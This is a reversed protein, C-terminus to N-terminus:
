EAPGFLDSDIDQQYDPYPNNGMHSAEEANRREEKANEMNWGAVYTFQDAKSTGRPNKFVIASCGTAMKEKKDSGCEPCKVDPYKNSKDFSTIDFYVKSCKKCAFKFNPM